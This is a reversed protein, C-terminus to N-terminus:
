TPMMSIGGGGRPAARAARFGGNAKVARAAGSGRRGQFGSTSRQGDRSDRSKGKAQAIYRRRMPKSAKAAEIKRSRGSRGNASESYAFRENLGARSDSQQFYTSQEGLDGDDDFDSTGLSGYDDGEDEDDSVLNIVNFDHQNNVPEEQQPASMDEYDKRYESVLKCFTKGFLRVKEPDIGPIRMMEDVTDTLNLAMQRFVTDSFPHAHLGKNVVLKQSKRRASEVFGDVAVQQVESLRSMMEDSSIPPGLKRNAEPKTRRRPKSQDNEMFEFADEEEDCEQYDDDEPDSVVFNDRAYQNARRQTQIPRKATNRETAAQIPSSVNTSLPMEARGRTKAAMDDKKAKKARKTPATKTRAPTLRVDLLLKEGGVTFDRAKRGLGIYQHAFGSKNIVNDERIAGESLLRYFLREVNERELDAGTGFGEIDAHGKDKAKRNEVGRFLDICHLLTVKDPAVSRVLEVAKRAYDTLDKSEFRSTSNCNDCRGGCAEKTFVENFYALVQVRRCDSRNECYQVMKKLMEHQRAKQDWNGDGDDIMRRLKGADGYGYFLYCGSEKGDRGARGTEQYYGELSRPLSHHIVFRVNAKDIGMGFAITAVIVQYKGAQWEKQIHSKEDPKLGAHYHTARIKYQKRLAFATEECNKRSLCYVIGTQGRYRTKILEAMSDLDKGKSVKPRVEYYLNSRNFSSTFVECGEMGLNHLVDLRVNETATATLAMVPLGPFKQRLEGLAKYDPRFDHGWQSVCHAEDIVLRAFQRRRHLAEFITIMNQNLSLMEPTVYLLQLRDQVDEAWLDSKIQDKEAKPTSGNILAAQINLNRLHQVQDEMLSLLPSVVVTVGRTAGNTIQSPLQYCLSKGGGTPMLIFADKGSLTANIAEIQNKRFGKLKFRVRLAEKVDDSWRHFFHSEFDADAQTAEVRRSKKASPQKTRPQINPSAEALALHSWEPTASIYAPQDFSNAHAQELELMEDDDMGFDEDDCDHPPPPTGMRSGFVEHKAAGFGQDDLVIDMPEDYDFDDVSHNRVERHEIDAPRNRKPSFYADIGAPTIRQDKVPPRPPPPMQTQAVRSSSHLVPHPQHHAASSQTTSVAVADRADTVNRSAVFARVEDRCGELLEVCSSELAHLRDKCALAAAKVADPSTGSRLAQAIGSRLKQREASVMTHESRKGLLAKVATEVCTLRAVEDELETADGTEDFAFAADDCLKMKRADLDSALTCVEEDPMGFLSQVLAVDESTGEQTSPKAASKALGPATVPTKSAAKLPLPAPYRGAVSSVGAAEEIMSHVAQLPPVTKARSPSEVSVTGLELSTLARRKSPPTSHTRNRKKTGTFNIIDEESDSNAVVQVPVAARRGDAGRSPAIQKPPVTSYPPPPGVPEDLLEDLNAFDESYSPQRVPALQEAAHNQARQLGPELSASQDMEESKRKRSSRADTATHEIGSDSSSVSGTLDMIELGKPIRMPTPLPRGLTQKVAFNSAPARCPSRQLRAAISPMSESLQMAASPSMSVQNVRGASGPATRLRAM